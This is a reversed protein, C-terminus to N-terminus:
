QLLFFTKPAFPTGFFSGSFISFDQDCGPGMSSGETAGSPVGGAMSRFFSAKPFIWLSAFELVPGEHLLQGQGELVNAIAFIAVGVFFSRADPVAQACRPLRSGDAVSPRAATVECVATM